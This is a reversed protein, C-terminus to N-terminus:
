GHFNRFPGTTAGNEGLHPLPAVGSLAPRRVLLDRASRGVILFIPESFPEPGKESETRHAAEAANTSLLPVTQGPEQHVDCAELANSGINLVHRISQPSAHVLMPTWALSAKTCRQKSDSKRTALIAGRLPTNGKGCLRNGYRLVWRRATHRRSLLLREPM